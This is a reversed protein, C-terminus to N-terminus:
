PVANILEQELGVHTINTIIILNLNSKRFLFLLEEIHGFIFKNFM